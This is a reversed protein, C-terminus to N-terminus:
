FKGVFYTCGNYLNYSIFHKPSQAIVLRVLGATLVLTCSILETFLILLCFWDNMKMDIPSPMFGFKGTHQDRM